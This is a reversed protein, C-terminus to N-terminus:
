GVLQYGALYITTIDGTPMATGPKYYAESAQVSWATRCWVRAYHGGDENSQEQQNSIKEVNGENIEVLYSLTKQVYM